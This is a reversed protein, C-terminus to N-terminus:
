ASIRLETFQKAPSSTHSTGRSVLAPVPFYFLSCAGGWSTGGTDRRTQVCSDITAVTFQAGGTCQCGGGAAPCILDYGFIHREEDCLRNRVGAQWSSGPSAFTRVSCRCFSILCCVCLLGTRHVSSLAAYSLSLLYILPFKFSKSDMELASSSFGALIPSPAWASVQATEPGVRLQSGASTQIQRNRIRELQLRTTQILVLCSRALSCNGLGWSETAREFSLGVDLDETLGLPQWVWM